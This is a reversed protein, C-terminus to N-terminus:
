TAPRRWPNSPTRCRGRTRRYAGYSPSPQGGLGISRAVRALGDENVLLARLKSLEGEAAQPFRQMLRDSIALDVVADGLFELRQNHTAGEGPHENAYSTHTLATLLLARDGPGIGLRAELLAMREDPTM